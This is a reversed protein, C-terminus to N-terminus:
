QGQVTARDILARQLRWHLSILTRAEDGTLGGSWLLTRIADDAQKVQEATLFDWAYLDM